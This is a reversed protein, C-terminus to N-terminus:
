LGFVGKVLWRLLWYTGLGFIVMWVIFLLWLVFRFLRNKFKKKEVKLLEDRKEKETRLKTLIKGIGDEIGSGVDETVKTVGEIRKEREVDDLSKIPM